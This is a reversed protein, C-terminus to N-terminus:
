KLRINNNRIDEIYKESLFYDLELKRNIFEDNKEGPHCMVIGQDEICTLFSNFYDGFLGKSNFDYVGAFSSNHPISNRKLTKELSGSGTARIIFSKLGKYAVMNYVSRIFVSYNYLDYSKYLKLLADRVIPFHHIHQHGDIFAPTVGFHLIFVKLQAELEDYVEQFKLQRTFSRLLLTNLGMFSGQKTIRSIKTLAPGETLNLHLGIRMNKVDLEKLLSACKEWCPFSVLCSTANIKGALLLRRIAQSIHFSQGYDDACIVINKM